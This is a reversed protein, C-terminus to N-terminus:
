TGSADSQLGVPTFRDSHAERSDGRGDSRCTFLLQGAYGTVQDAIFSIPDTVNRIVRAYTIGGNIGTDIRHEMAVM